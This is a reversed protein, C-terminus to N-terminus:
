KANLVKKMFVTRKNNKGSLDISVVYVDKQGVQKKIVRIRRRDQTRKDGIEGRMKECWRKLKILQDDM